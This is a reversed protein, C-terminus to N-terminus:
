SPIILSPLYKFTLTEPVNGRRDGQVFEVGDELGLHTEMDCVFGWGTTLLTRGAQEKGQLGV